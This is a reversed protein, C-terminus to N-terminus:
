HNYAIITTCIEDFHNNEIHTLFAQQWSNFLHNVAPQALECYGIDPQFFHQEAWHFLLEVDMDTSAPEPSSYSAILFLQWEHHTAKRIVQIEIPHPGLQSQYYSLTRFNFALKTTNSDALSILQKLYDCLPPSLHIHPGSLLQCKM